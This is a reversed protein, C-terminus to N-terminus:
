EPFGRIIERGIGDSNRQIRIMLLPHRSFNAIAREMDGPLLFREGEIKRFLVSTGGSQFPIGPVSFPDRGHAQLGCPERIFCCAIHKVVTCGRHDTQPHFSGAQDPLVYGDAPDKALLGAADGGGAIPVHNRTGPRRITGNRQRRDPLISNVLQFHSKM